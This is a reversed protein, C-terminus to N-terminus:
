KYITGDDKGRKIQEIAELQDENYEKNRHQKSSHLLQKKTVQSFDCSRTDATKSKRIKIM